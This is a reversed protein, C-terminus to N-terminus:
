KINLLRRLIEDFTENRKGKNDLHDRVERTVKLTTIENKTEMTICLIGLIYAKHNRKHKTTRRM